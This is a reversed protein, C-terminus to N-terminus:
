QPFTLSALVTEFGPWAQSDAPGAGIMLLRSAGMEIYYGAEHGGGDDVVEAVGPRDGLTPDSTSLVVVPPQGSGNRSDAPWQRIPKDIGEAVRVIAKLKDKPIQEEPSTTSPDYSYLTVVSGGDKAPSLYWSAPYQFSYGYTPDTYTLTATSTPAVASVASPAATTTVTVNPTATAVLQSLDDGSDGCAFGLAAILGLVPLFWLRLM